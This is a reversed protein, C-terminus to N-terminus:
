KGVAKHRGSKPNPAAVYGVLSHGHLTVVGDAPAAPGDLGPFVDNPSDAATDVFLRWDFARASEPLTFRQSESGSHLLLM